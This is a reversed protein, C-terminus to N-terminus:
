LRVDNTIMAILLIRSGGGGGAKALAEAPKGGKQSLGIACKHQNSKSSLRLSGMPKDVTAEAFTSAETFM